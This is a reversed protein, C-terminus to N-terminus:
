SAAGGGNAPDSGAARRPRVLLYAFWSLVAIVPVLILQYWYFFPWDGLKPTSRAYIPVVLTAAIGVLLLIAAAAWAVPRRPPTSEAM